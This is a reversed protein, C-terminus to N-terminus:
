EDTTENGDEANSKQNAYIFDWADKAVASVKPLENVDFNTYSKWEEGVKVRKEVKTVFKKFTRGNATVENEFVSAHIVGRSFKKIPESM